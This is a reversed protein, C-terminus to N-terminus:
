IYKNLGYYIELVQNLAFSLSDNVEYIKGDALLWFISNFVYEVLAIHSPSICHARLGCLLQLLGSTPVIFDERFFHHKWKYGWLYTPTPKTFITPLPTAPLLFMVHLSGFLLSFKFIGPLWKFDKLLPLIHDSKRFNSAHNQSVCLLSCMSLFLIFVSLGTQSSTHYILCVSYSSGSPHCKRLFSVFSIFLHISLINLLHFSHNPTSSNPPLPTLSLEWTELQAICPISSYALFLSHSPRPVLFFQCTGNQATELTQLCSYIDESYGFILM